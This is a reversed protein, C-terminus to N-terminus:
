HTKDTAMKPGDLNGLMGASATIQTLNGYIHFEPKAYTKSGGRSAPSRQQSDM